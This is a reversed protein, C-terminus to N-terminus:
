KTFYAASIKALRKKSSHSSILPSKALAPGAHM